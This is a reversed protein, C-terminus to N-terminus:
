CRRAPRTCGSCRWAPTWTPGADAPQDQQHKRSADRMQSAIARREALPRALFSHRFHETRVEARFRQYALRGHV